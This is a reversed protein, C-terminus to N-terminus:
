VRGRSRGQLYSVLLTSGFLPVFFTLVSRFYFHAYQPHEFYYTFRELGHLKRMPVRKVYEAFEHGSHLKALDEASVARLDVVNEGESPVM